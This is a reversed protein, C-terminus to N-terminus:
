LKVPISRNWFRDIRRMPTPFVSHPQGPPLVEHQGADYVLEGALEELTVAMRLMQFSEAIPSSSAIPSSLALIDSEGNRKSPLPIEAVVPFGFNNAARSIACDSILLALILVLGAGIIVGVAFGGLLRM